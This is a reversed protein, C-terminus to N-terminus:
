AEDRRVHFHISAGTMSSRGLFLFTAIWVAQAFLIFLPDALTRLGLLIDASQVATLRQSLLAVILTYVVSVAAMIQYSSIKKGGRYDARLTESFCRWLQTAAIATMFSVGYFGKLFLCVSVLGTLIYIISTVAQIPVVERNELGGEYVVKKTRGTFVFNYNRFIWKGFAGLTQVPRGYCCGFSICAIRGIGEGFTYSVAAAAMFPMVPVFAFGSYNVLVVMPPALILGTFSAGAVTFTHARKEFFAAILKSAPLSVALIAATAAVITGLSVGISSTLVAMIVVAFLQACAIFFGYFTYNMGKWSGSGTKEVPVAAIIQWKELPLRTFSWWLFPIFMIGLGAVFLENQM